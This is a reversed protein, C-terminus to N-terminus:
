NPLWGNDMQRRRLGNEIKEREIKSKGKSRYSNKSINEPQKRIKLWYEERVNDDIVIQTSFLSDNGDKKAGSIWFDELTDEDFFNAKLPISRTPVLTRGNYYLTKGTKSAYVRGIRGIGHLGDTKLEIYMIQSKM